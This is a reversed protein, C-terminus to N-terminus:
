LKLITDGVFDGLTHPIWSAWLSRAALWPYVFVISVIGLVVRLEIPYQEHAAAFVTCSGVTAVVVGLRDLKGDLPLTTATAAGYFASLILGRYILEEYLNSALDGAMKPVYPWFGFTGGLAAGLGVTIALLIATAILGTRIVRRWSGGSGLSRRLSPLWGLRSGVLWVGICLVLQPLQGFVWHGLVVALDHNRIQHYGALDQVWPTVYHDGLWWAALAAVLLGIRGLRESM